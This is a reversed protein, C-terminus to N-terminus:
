QKCKLQYKTQNKFRKEAMSLRQKCKRQKTLQIACYRNFEVKKVTKYM